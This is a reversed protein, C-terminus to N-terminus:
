KKYEVIDQPMVALTPAYSTTSRPPSLLSSLFALDSGSLRDWTVLRQEFFFSRSSRVGAITYASKTLPQANRYVTRIVKIKNLLVTTQNNTKKTITGVITKIENIVLEPEDYHIYHGSKQALVHRIHPSSTAWKKHLDVKMKNVGKLFSRSSEPVNMATIVTTPVKAPFEITKTKIHTENSRFYDAERKLGEAWSPDRGHEYLSDYSKIEAQAKSRRIEDDLYEVSPDILLMGAVKEPYLHTFYRVIHGGYSHGVLVYPEPINENTLIQNLEFVLTDLSRNRVTLESKGLGARDYSITRTIKSLAKQISDYSNLDDGFGTVFVVVPQGSGIDLIHQDKGNIHVFRNSEKKSTCGKALFIILFCLPLRTM